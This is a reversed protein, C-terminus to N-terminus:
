GASPTAAELAVAVPTLEMGGGDPLRLTLTGQAVVFGNVADLERLFVDMLSGEPCMARTVGGVQLDITAGETTFTGMARNCDAQIALKGEPLFEVAYQSPVDPQYGEGNGEDSSQWEWRVGSLAPRLRLAGEDGSLTLYGDGDIEYATVEQLIAQFAQGQSEPECMALTTRMVDIEITGDAASFGAGGQNCDLKATMQGDPLFQVTYRTPEEIAVDAGDRGTLSVLEWVIPPIVGGATPTSPALPASLAFLLVMGAIAQLM